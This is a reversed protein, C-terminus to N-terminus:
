VEQQDLADLIVMATAQNKTDSLSLHLQFDQHIQLKGKLVGLANGRLSLTPKGLEDRSIEMDQWRIGFARGTGLAKLCAEKAAFRKAYRAARFHPRQDCYAQEEPTFIRNLFRDGHKQISTEFRKIDVIDTGIGLIMQWIKIFNFHIFANELTANSFALYNLAWLIQLGKNNATSITKLSYEFTVLSLVHRMLGKIINELHWLGTM